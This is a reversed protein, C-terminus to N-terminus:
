VLWIKDKRYEEEIKKHKKKFCWACEVRSDGNEPIYIFTHFGLLCRLWKLM